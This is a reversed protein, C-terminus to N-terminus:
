RHSWTEWLWCLAFFVAGGALIGWSIREFKM